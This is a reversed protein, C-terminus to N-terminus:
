PKYGGTRRNILRSLRKSKTNDSAGDDPLGAVDYAERWGQLTRIQKLNRRQEEIDVM